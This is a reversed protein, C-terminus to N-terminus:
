KKISLKKNPEVKGIVEFLVLITKQFLSNNDDSIMFYQNDKYHALGEFNDISWGESANFRAVTEATCLQNKDCKDLQLRRLNIVVPIFPNKYSRELILVDGNELIELGTIGSNPAKSREFNWEKGNSSFLTQISKPRYKIPYEAATVVGFEPHYAVSELAKNKHLFKSKKNIKKPLKISSIMRGKTSFKVIRPKNEFSILLQTDGQKGNNTYLTSLGESDRYKGKLPIGNSDILNTAFVVKLDHLQNNKFTVKLQYLYGEDSVAYLVQDDKDWAIGSLEKIPISNFRSSKFVISGNFKLQMFRSDFHEPAIPYSYANTQGSSCSFLLLASLGILCSFLWQISYKLPKQNLHHTSKFNTKLKFLTRM